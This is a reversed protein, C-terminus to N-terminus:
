ILVRQVNGGLEGKTDLIIRYDIVKDNVLISYCNLSIRIIDDIDAMEKGDRLMFLQKLLSKLFALFLIRTYRLEEIGFM